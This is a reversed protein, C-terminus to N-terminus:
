NLLKNLLYSICLLTVPIIIIHSILYMHIFTTVTYHSRDLLSKTFSSINYLSLPLFFFLYSTIFECIILHTFLILLTHYMVSQNKLSTLQQPIVYM